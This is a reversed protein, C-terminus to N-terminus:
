RCVEGMGWRLLCALAVGPPLWMLAVHAFGPTIRLSLLAAGYWGLGIFALQAMGVLSLAPVAINLRAIPLRMDPVATIPRAHHVSAPRFRRHAALLNPALQRLQIYSKADSKRIHVVRLDRMDRAIKTILIAGPGM